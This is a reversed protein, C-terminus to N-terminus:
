RLLSRHWKPGSSAGPVCGVALARMRNRGLLHLARTVLLSPSQLKRRLGVPSWDQSSRGKVAQLGFDHPRCVLTCTSLGRPNGQGCAM